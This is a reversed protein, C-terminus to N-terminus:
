QGDKQRNPQRVFHMQRSYIVTSTVAFILFLAWLLPLGLWAPSGGQEAGTVPLLSPSEGGTPPLAMPNPLRGALAVDISPASGVQRMDELSILVWSFHESHPLEPMHQSISATGDSLYNLAGVSLFGGETQELWAYYVQGAPPMPLNQAMVRVEEDNAAVVAIGRGKAAPEWTTKFPLHDLFIEVPVGNASVTTATLLILLFAIFWVSFSRRRFTAALDPVFHFM